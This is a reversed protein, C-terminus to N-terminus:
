ETADSVFNMVDQQIRINGDRWVRWAKLLDVPLTVGLEFVIEAISHRGSLLM